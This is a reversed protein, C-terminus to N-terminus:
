TARYNLRNLAIFAIIRTAALLGVLYGVNRGLHDESFDSFNVELWQSITGKCVSGDPTCKLATYFSSGVSAEILTDDGNFQSTFLSEFIYQGPMLWYMFVWFTPIDSPRILIGAFLSSFGIILGGFGQATETDRFLSMLMQGLFTYTAIALFVFFYFTFFKDPDTSFGMIFYFALTFVTATLFLFPIEAVTLSGLIAAPSYMKAAKHRYFMNRESQFVLLVSNQGYVCMFILAMFISNIRSNMDSENEPVRQSAYVSGYIMAVVFAVMLRITNYDPSRFYITMIRSMVSTVQTSFSTAFPTEFSVENDPTAKANLDDIRELCNIRLKSASYNGAYDFPKATPSASGAGITTLMWTAPNEGPQIRPTATYSELYHILNSSHDGLDGFFVVEGGRKLLLLADFENFIAISPQHITACVARGSDAVRRLGRM